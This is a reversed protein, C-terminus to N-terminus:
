KTERSAPSSVDKITQNILAYIHVKFLSNCTGLQSLDNVCWKLLCRFVCQYKFLCDDYMCKTICNFSFMIICHITSDVQHHVLRCQNYSLVVSVGFKYPICKCDLYITQRGCHCATFMVIFSVITHPSYHVHKSGVNLLLAHLYQLSGCGSIPCTMFHCTEVFSWQAQWSVTM